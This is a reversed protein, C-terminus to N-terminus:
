QSLKRTEFRGTWEIRFFRLATAIELRVPARGKM